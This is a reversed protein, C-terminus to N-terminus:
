GALDEPFPRMDETVAISNRVGHRRLCEIRLGLPIKRWKLLRRMYRIQHKLSRPYAQAEVVSALLQVLRHDALDAVTKLALGLRPKRRSMARVSRM